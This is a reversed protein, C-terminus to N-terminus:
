RVWYMTRASKYLPTEDIPYIESVCSVEGGEESIRVAEIVAEVLLFYPTKPRLFWVGSRIKYFYKPEFSLKM